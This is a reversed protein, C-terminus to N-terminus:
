GQESGRDLLRNVADMLSGDHYPKILYADYAPDDNLPLGCEPVATTLIVPTTEGRERLARIMQLGNMRPMMYDSIILDPASSLAQALGAEGNAAMVVKHGADELVMSASLAIILEDEVILIYAM